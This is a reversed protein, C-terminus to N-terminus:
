TEDWQVWVLQNGTPGSPALPDVKAQMYLYNGFYGVVSTSGAISLPSPYTYATFDLVSGVLSPINTLNIEAGAGGAAFAAVYATAQAIRPTVNSGMTNIGLGYLRFNNVLTVPPVACYLRFAAWFSWNSGSGPVPVPYGTITADDPADRDDSRVITSFVSTPTPVSGTLRHLQIIAAM